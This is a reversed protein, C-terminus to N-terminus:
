ALLLGVHAYDDFTKVSSPKLMQIVSAGDIITCTVKPSETYGSHVKELCSLLDSKSGLRLGGGTWLSPPCTQNEHRFFENLNGDRIQCAIFLRSFLEMDQKLSILKQKPKSIKKVTSTGFVLLKNKPITDYVAKTREILCERIFDEFKSKGTQKVQRVAEVASSGALVKSHLVILDKSEEEFPNGLHEFVTVLSRVDKLFSNQVSATQDHHCTKEGKEERVEFEQICRAIEPGAVMWRLLASPNETLGVAGGDGKICANMQEHAHDMAISSFAHKTKQVTFKGEMFAKAVDPHTVPLETMDKLHVPIWRAYHTHDMAHFWKALETLSDLYMPFSGERLSRVFVLLLLELELVISWYQFQPIDESRQNCWADFAIPVQDTQAQCYNKYARHQLINLSAATVQHARRTRCVHGAKLFSEATGPSSINAQVLAEVWGSGHLWNGLMKLAVMEPQLGGFMIVMKHEGYKDPWMLQIQKALAFLPQDFTIVPCQGPNLHKVSKSIVDLSHKIMAVTHASEQFLPLLVTSCAAPIEQTQRSAHFAAWSVNLKEGESTKNEIVEDANNLWQYEAKTHQNIGNRSLSQIKTEPVQSFKINSSVPHVESYYAILFRM